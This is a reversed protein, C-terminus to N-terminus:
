LLSAAIPLGVLGPEEVEHALPPDVLRDRLFGKRVAAQQAAFILGVVAVAPQHRLIQVIMPTTDLDSVESLVRAASAVGPSVAPLLHKASDNKTHNVGSKRCHNPHAAAIDRADPRSSSAHGRLPPLRSSRTPLLRAVCPRCPPSVGLEPGSRKAFIFARHAGTQGAAPVLGEIRVPDLPNVGRREIHELLDSQGLGDRATDLRNRRGAPLQAGFTPEEERASEDFVRHRAGSAIDHEVPLIGPVVELKGPVPHVEPGRAGRHVHHVGPSALVPLRGHRVEVVDGTEDVRELVDVEELTRDDATVELIRPVEVEVGAVGCNGPRRLVDSRAPHLGFM